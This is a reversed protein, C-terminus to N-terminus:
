KCHKAIYSQVEEETYLRMNRKGNENFGPLLVCLKRALAEVNARHCTPCCNAFYQDLRKLRAAGRGMNSPVEGEHGCKYARTEMAKGKAALPKERM